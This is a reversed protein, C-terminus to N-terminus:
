RGAHMIEYIEADGLTDTLSQSVGGTILIQDDSIRNCASWARANLLKSNSSNFGVYSVDARGDEV